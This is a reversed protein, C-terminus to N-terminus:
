GCGAATRVRDTAAVITFTQAPTLPGRGYLRHTLAILRDLRRCTAPHHGGLYATTISDIRGFFRAQLAAPLGFSAVYFRLEALRRQATPRASVVYTRDGSAIVVDSAGDGTMDGAGGFAGTPAAFNLGQDGLASIDVTATSSKGFVAVVGRDESGSGDLLVDGRGDGNVDGASTAATGLSSGGTIQFGRAGPNATDVTATSAAGFIVAARNAFSAFETFGGVGVVLDRRGDRNADGIGALSWAVSNLDLENGNVPTKLSDFMRFGQSRLANLDVTAGPRRGFVVWGSDAWRRSTAVDPIGDGNTDGLGAVAAGVPQGQIAFGAAGLAATDVPTATAKGYVVFASGAQDTCAPAMGVCQGEFFGVIVDARGDGNVDGAGDV